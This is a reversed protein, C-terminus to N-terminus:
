RRSGRLLISEWRHVQVVVEEAGTLLLPTSEVVVAEGEVQVGLQLPEEGEEVVVERLGEQHGPLQSKRLLEVM